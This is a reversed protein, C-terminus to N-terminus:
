EYLADLKAGYRQAIVHRRIKLTPTMQENDIGFPEATIAFRRIKEIGSLSHNVEDVAKALSREPTEYRSAFFILRL